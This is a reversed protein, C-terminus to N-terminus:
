RDNPPLTLIPPSPPSSSPPRVKHTPLQLTKQMFTGQITPQSDAVFNSRCYRTSLSTKGVRGDGLLVVKFSAETRRTDM